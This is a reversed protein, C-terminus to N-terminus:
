PLICFFDIWHLCKKKFHLEGQKASQAAWILHRLVDEINHFHLHYSDFSQAMKFYIQYEFDYFRASLIQLWFSFIKSHFHFLPENQIQIVYETHTHKTTFMIM